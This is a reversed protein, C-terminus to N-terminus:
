KAVIIPQPLILRSDGGTLPLRSFAPDAADYLGVEIPYTGPPLDAPITLTIPDIIIENPVWGTTPKPPLHDANIVVTDDADLAHTFVTYSTDFGAEARWYLPSRTAM